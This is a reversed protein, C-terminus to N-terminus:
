PFNISINCFYAVFPFRAKQWVVNRDGTRVVNREGEASLTNQLMYFM